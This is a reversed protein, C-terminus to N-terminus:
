VVSFGFGRDPNLNRYSKKGLRNDDGDRKGRREKGLPIVRSSKKETIENTAEKLDQNLAKKEKELSDGL